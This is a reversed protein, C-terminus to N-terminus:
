PADDQEAAWKELFEDAQSTVPRLNSPKVDRHPHGQVILFAESVVLSEQDFEFMTDIEVSPTVFGDESGNCVAVRLDSDLGAPLQAAKATMLEIADRVNM